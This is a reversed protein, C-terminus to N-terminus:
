QAALRRSSALSLAPQRTRSSVQGNNQVEGTIGQPALGTDLRAASGSGPADVQNGSGLMGSGRASGRVSPRDQWSPTRKMTRGSGGVAQAHPITVSLHRRGANARSGSSKRPPKSQPPSPALASASSAPSDAAANERLVGRRIAEIAKRITAQHEVIQAVRGRVEDVEKHMEKVKASFEPPTEEKGAPRRKAEQAEREGNLKRLAIELRNSKNCESKWAAELLEVKLLLRRSCSTSAESLEDMQEFKKILVSEAANARTTEAHLKEELQAMEARLRAATNTADAAVQKATRVAKQAGDESERVRDITATLEQANLAAKALRSAEAEAWVELRHEVGFTRM